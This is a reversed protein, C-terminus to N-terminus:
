NYQMKSFKAITLVLIVFFVYQFNWYPKNYKDKQNLVLRSKHISKVM